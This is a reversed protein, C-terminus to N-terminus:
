EAERKKDRRVAWVCWWVLGVIMALMVVLGFWM